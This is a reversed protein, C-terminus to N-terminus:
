LRESSQMMETCNVPLADTDWPHRIDRCEFRCEINDGGVMQYTMWGMVVFAGLAIM